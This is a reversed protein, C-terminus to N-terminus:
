NRVSDADAVFVLKNEGEHLTFLVKIKAEKEFESVLKLIKQSFEETKQEVEKLTM